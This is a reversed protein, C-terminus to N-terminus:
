GPPHVRKRLTLRNANGSREYTVEDMLERVFHVGLGGIRREDLSLTTDPEPIALPDFAVGHDELTAVVVGGELRLRVWVAPEAGAGDPYGYTIANTALEDLALTVHMRARDPLGHTEFFKDVGESILAIESLNHGLTIVVPETMARRM